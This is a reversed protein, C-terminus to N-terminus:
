PAPHFAVARQMAEQKQASTMRAALATLEPADFNLFGNKASLYYWKYAEVTDQTANDGSSYLRGLNFQCNAVNQAACKGFWFVAKESSKPVGAGADYFSGLAFQAAAHGGEAALAYWKAAEPFNEPEAGGSEYYDGLRFGAEYDQRQTAAQKWWVVAEAFRGSDFLDSGEDARVPPATIAILLLVYGARVRSRRLPALNM